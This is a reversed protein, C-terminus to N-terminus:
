RTHQVFASNGGFDDGVLAIDTVIADAHVVTVLFSNWRRLWFYNADLLLITLIALTTAHAESLLVVPRYGTALFHNLRNRHAAWIAQILARELVLKHRLAIAALRLLDQWFNTRLLQVRSLISGLCCRRRFVGVLYPFHLCILWLLHSFNLKGLTTLGEWLEDLRDM